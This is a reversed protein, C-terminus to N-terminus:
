DKHGNHREHLAKAERRERQYDELASQVDARALTVSDDDENLLDDPIPKRKEALLQTLAQSFSRTSAQDGFQAKVDSLHDVLWLYLDGETRNPFYRLVDYKRILTV